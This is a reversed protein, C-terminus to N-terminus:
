IIGVNFINIISFLASKRININNGIHYILNWQIGHIWENIYYQQKQM